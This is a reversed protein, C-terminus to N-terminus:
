IENKLTTSLINNIHAVVIEKSCTLLCKNSINKHNYKCYGEYMSKLSMILQEKNNVDILFGFEDDWESESFGGHRTSIVPRGVAMAERYVLGYTEAKSALVFCNCSVYKKLTEARSLQGLLHIQGSMGTESIRKEIEEQLPGSGGINLDVPQGKFAITFADILELFGKRPILSGMSFFNFRTRPLDFYKFCPNIMNSVVICNSKKGTFNFISERLGESVCIFKDCNNVTYRVAAKHREAVNNGMLGSFHEEVVLPISYKKSLECAIMGAPYSFHAYLVDPRGERKIADDFLSYLSKRFQSVYHNPFKSPWLTWYKKYYIKSCDDTESTISKDSFPSKCFQPSLVVIDNGLEKLGQAQEYIFVCEEPHEKTKYWSPIIFIKM